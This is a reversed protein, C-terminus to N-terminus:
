AESMKQQTPLDNSAKCTVRKKCVESILLLTLLYFSLIFLCIEPEAKSCLFIDNTRPRAYSLSYAYVMM